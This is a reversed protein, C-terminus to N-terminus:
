HPGVDKVVRVRPDKQLDAILAKKLDYGAEDGGLVIRLQRECMYSPDVQHPM